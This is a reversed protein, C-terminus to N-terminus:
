LFHSCFELNSSCSIRKLQRPPSSCNPRIAGRVEGDPGWVWDRGKLEKKMREEKERAEKDARELRERTDALERTRAEERRRLGQTPVGVGDDSYGVPEPMMCDADWLPVSHLVFM